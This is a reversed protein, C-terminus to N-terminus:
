QDAMELLFLVIFGLFFTATLLPTEPGEHAETLLEETVLYLLAASGLALLGPLDNEPLYRLLQGSFIACLGFFLALGTVVGVIKKRQLGRDLFTSATALGLACLEIALAVSLLVGAKSGASFAIGLMLGDIALDVGMAFLLALPMARAADARETNAGEARRSFERIALMAATGLGFGIATQLSAHRHMLDPLFEVAVVAFIVGAALHLVASRLRPGPRMFAAFVGAAIMIAVPLLSFQILSWSM